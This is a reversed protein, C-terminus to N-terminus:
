PDVINQDLEDSKIDEFYIILADNPAILYKRVWRCNSVPNNKYYNSKVEIYKSLIYSTLRAM